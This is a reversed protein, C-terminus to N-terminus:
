GSHKRWLAARVILGALLCASFAAYACLAALVQPWIDGSRHGLADTPAPPQGHQALLAGGIAALLAIVIFAADFVRRGRTRPLNRPFVWYLFCLILLWPALLAVALM